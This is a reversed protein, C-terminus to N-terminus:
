VIRQRKGSWCPWGCAASPSLAVKVTPPEQAPPRTGARGARSAAGREQKAPPTNTPFRCGCRAAPRAPSEGVEWGGRGDCASLPLYGNSLSQFAAAGRFGPPGPLAQGEGSDTEGGRGGGRSLPNPPSPPGPPGPRSVRSGCEILCRGKDPPPPPPPAVPGLSPRTRGGGGSQRPAAAERRGRTLHRRSLPLEEGSGGFQRPM